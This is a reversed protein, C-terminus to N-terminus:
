KHTVWYNLSGTIGLAGGLPTSNSISFVATAMCARTRSLTNYQIALM